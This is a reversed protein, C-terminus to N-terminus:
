TFELTQIELIPTETEDCDLLRQGKGMVIGEGVEEWITQSGLKVAGDSISFTQPYLVPIFVPLQRGVRLFLQAQAWYLDRLYTPAKFRLMKIENWPVWYYQPGVMVELVPGLFNHCDYIRSFPHANIKGAVLPWSSCSAELFERAQGFRSEGVYKIAALLMELYPAPAHFFEPGGGYAFMQTRKEEALLLDRYIHIGHQNSSDLEKLLDLNRRAKEFEGSFCQTEFLFTRSAQDAPNVRVTQVLQQITRDLEGALLFSKADMM